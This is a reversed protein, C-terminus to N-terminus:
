TPAKGLDWAGHDNMTKVDALIRKEDLFQVRHNKQAILAAFDKRRPKKESGHRWDSFMQWALLDAAQVPPFKKKEVFSHSIYRYLRRQGETQFAVNMIRNAATQSKHGAEFFYAADGSFGVSDMWGRVGRLVRWLCYNYANGWNYHQPMLQDYLPEVCMVGIGLEVNENVIAILRKVLEIREGGPVNSFEKNGHACDKMHFHTVGYHRLPELADEWAVSLAQASESDIIYGAVCLVPSGAHSGSEDFYAEILSVTYGGSPLVARLLRCTSPFLKNPVGMKDRTKGLVLRPFCYLSAGM